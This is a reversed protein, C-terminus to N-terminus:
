KIITEWKDQMEKWGMKLVAPASISTIIVPAIFFYEFDM